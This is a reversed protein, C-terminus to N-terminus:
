LGSESIVGMNRILSSENFTLPAQLGVVLDQVSYKGNLVMTGISIISTHERGTIM